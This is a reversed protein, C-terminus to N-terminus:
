DDRNRPVYTEVSVSARANRCAQASDESSTALLYNVGERKWGQHACSSLESNWAGRKMMGGLSKLRGKRTRLAAPAAPKRQRIRGWVGLARM